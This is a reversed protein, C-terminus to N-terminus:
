FFSSSFFTWGELLLINLSLVIVKLKLIITCEFHAKSVHIDSGNTLHSLFMGHHTRTNTQSSYNDRKLLNHPQIQIQRSAVATCCCLFVFTVIRAHCFNRTTEQTNTRGQRQLLLLSLHTCPQRRLSEIEWIGKCILLQTAALPILAVHHRCSRPWTRLLFPPQGGRGVGKEWLSLFQVLWGQQFIPTTHYLHCLLSFSPLKIGSKISDNGWGQNTHAWDM